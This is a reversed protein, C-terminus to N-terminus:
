QKKQSSGLRVLEAEVKTCVREYDSDTEVQLVVCRFKDGDPLDIMWQCDGVIGKQQEIPDIERYEGPEDEQLRREVHRLLLKEDLILVVILVRDYQERFKRWAGQISCHEFIAFPFRISDIEAEMEYYHKGPGEGHVSVNLHKGIKKAITSKGSGVAGTIVLAVTLPKMNMLTITGSKLGRCGM